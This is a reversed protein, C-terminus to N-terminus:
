NTENSSNKTVVLHKHMIVLEGKPLCTFLRSQYPSSKEVGLGVGAASGEGDLYQTNVKYVNSHNVTANEAEYRPAGQSWEVYDLEM